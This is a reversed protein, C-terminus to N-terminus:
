DHRRFPGPRRRPRKGTRRRAPCVEAEGPERGREFKDHFALAPVGTEVVAERGAVWFSFRCSRRGVSGLGRVPDPFWYAGAPHFGAVARADGRDPGAGAPCPRGPARMPRRLRRRRPRGQRSRSQFSFSRRQSRYGVWSLREPSCPPVLHRGAPYPCGAFAPEGHFMWPRPRLHPHLGCAMM